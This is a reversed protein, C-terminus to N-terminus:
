GLLFHSLFHNKSKMNVHRVIVFSLFCFVRINSNPNEHYRWYSAVIYNLTNFFEMMYKKM